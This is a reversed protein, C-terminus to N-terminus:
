SEALMMQMEIYANHVEKKLAEKNGALLRSKGLLSVLKGDLDTRFRAHSINDRLTCLEEFADRKLYWEAWGGHGSSGGTTVSTRKQMADEHTPIAQETTLNVYIPSRQCELSLLYDLIFFADDARKTNRNIAAFSTIEACYGGQTTYIPFLSISEKERIGAYMDEFMKVDPYSNFGVALNQYYHDPVGEFEGKANKDELAGLAEMVGILDDETFDLEEAEYDALTLFVASLRDIDLTFSGSETHVQSSLLSVPDSSAANDFFTLSKSPTHEFDSKRFVTLPMSYTLPLLQQGEETKGADMVAPTLKDWELFQAKKIYDDLPLFTRREMVQDPYKFLPPEEGNYCAAIFVDPGKGAMIETRSRTLDNDRLTQNELKNERSYDYYINEFVINRPGGAEEIAKKFAELTKDRDNPYAVSTKAIGFDVLIRLADTHDQTSEEGTPSVSSTGDGKRECATISILLLFLLLFAILQKRKM